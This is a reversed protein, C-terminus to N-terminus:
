PVRRVSVRRGEPGDETEGRPDVRPEGDVLFLYKRRGKPVPVVISWSGGGGKSLKFLGPTWANFDGVLEVSKARPASFRFEAPILEVPEDPGRHPVHRTSTARLPAPEWRSMFGAYDRLARAWEISPVTVVGLVVAFACWFAWKGGREM